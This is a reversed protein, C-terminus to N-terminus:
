LIATIALFSLVPFYVFCSTTRISFSNPLHIYMNRVMSNWIPVTISFFDNTQPLHCKLLMPRRSSSAFSVFFNLDPFYSADSVM